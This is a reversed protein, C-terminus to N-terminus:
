DFDCVRASFSNYGNQYVDEDEKQRNVYDRARAPQSADPPPISLESLHPSMTKAM